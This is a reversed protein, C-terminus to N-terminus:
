RTLPNRQLKVPRPSTGTAALRPKVASNMAAQRAANTQMKRVPHRSFGHIPTAEARHFIRDLQSDNAYGLDGKAACDRIRRRPRQHTGRVRASAQPVPPLPKSNQEPPM